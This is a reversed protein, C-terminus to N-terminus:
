RGLSFPSLALRECLTPKSKCAPQNTSWDHKEGMLACAIRSAERCPGMRSLFARVHISPASHASMWVLAVELQLIRPSILWHLPQVLKKIWTPELSNHPILCWSDTTDSPKTNGSPGSAWNARAHTSRVLTSSMNTELSLRENLENHKQNEKGALLSHKQQGRLNMRVSYMYTSSPFSWAPNLRKKAPAICFTTLSCCDFLASSSNNHDPIWQIGFVYM